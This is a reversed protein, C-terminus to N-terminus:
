FEVEFDDAPTGKAPKQEKRKTSKSQSSNKKKNLGDAPTGKAPKQEKRKTSKSQSSNKKKNMMQRVKQKKKIQEQRAHDVFDWFAGPGLNEMKFRPGDRSKTCKLKFKDLGREEEVFLSLIFDPYQDTKDPKGQPTVVWKDTAQDNQWIQSRIALTTYIFNCNIEDCMKSAHVFFDTYNRNIVSYAARRGEAYTPLMRKAEMKGTSANYKTEQRAQAMRARMLDREPMGHVEEAYHDRCSLYFAGENELVLFRASDTPYDANHKALLDTFVDLFVYVDEFHDVVKRMFCQRYKEPVIDERSFIRRAGNDMDVICCLVRDAGYKEAAKVVEELLFTTKGAGREGEIKLCYAQTNIIEDASQVGLLALDHKSARLVREEMRSPPTTKESSKRAM